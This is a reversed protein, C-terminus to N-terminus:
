SSSEPLSATLTCNKRATGTQDHSTRVSLAVRSLSWQVASVHIKLEHVERRSICFSAPFRPLGGGKAPYLKVLPSLNTLYIFTRQVKLAGFDYSLLPGFFPPPDLHQFTGGLDGNGSKICGDGDGAIIIDM